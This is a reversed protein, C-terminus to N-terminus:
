VSIKKMTAVSSLECHCALDKTANAMYLSSSQPNSDQCSSPTKGKEVVDLGARPGV